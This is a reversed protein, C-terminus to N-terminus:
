NQHEGKTKNYLLQNENIKVNEDTLDILSQSNSANIRMYDRIEKLVAINEMETKSEPSSTKIQASSQQKIEPEGTFKDYLWGVGKGAWGGLKGGLYTGAMAGLPGGFISGAVGGILKGLGDGIAESRKGEETIKDWNKYKDYADIGAYAVSGIGGAVKGIKAVKGLEKWPTFKLPNQLNGSVNKIGQWKVGGTAFDKMGGLVKAGAKNLLGNEGSFKDVAKSFKNTARTFIFDGATKGIFGLSSAGIATAVGKTLGPGGLSENWWNLAKGGAGFISGLFGLSKSVGEQGGGYTTLKATDYSNRNRKYGYANELAKNAGERAPSFYQSEINQGFNSNQMLDHISYFTTNEYMDSLGAAMMQSPDFSARNAYSSKYGSLHQSQKYISSFSNMDLQNTSAARAIAPLFKSAFPDNQMKTLLGASIKAGGTRIYEMVDADNALGSQKLIDAAAKHSRRWAENRASQEKQANEQNILEVSKGTALSLMKMEKATKNIEINMQEQSMKMLQDPTLKSLVNEFVSVKESNSLNFRDDISSIASEFSKLGNGMSGNLRAILPSTKKLHNSLDDYTMGLNYATQGLENFGNKLFVGNSEIDQYVGGLKFAADLHKDLGDILVNLARLAYKKLEKSEGAIDKLTDATNKQQDLNEQRQKKALENQKQLERFEGVLQKIIEKQRGEEAKILKEEREDNDKNVKERNKQFVDILLDRLIKLASDDNFGVAISRNNGAVPLFDMINSIDKTDSM